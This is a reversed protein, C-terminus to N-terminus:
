GGGLPMTLLIEDGNNLKTDFKSVANNVIIIIFNYNKNPLHISELIDYVTSGESLNLKFENAETARNLLGFTEVSVVISM